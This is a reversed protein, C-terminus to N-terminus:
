CAFFASESAPALTETLLEEPNAILILNPRRMRGSSRQRSTHAADPASIGFLPVDVGGRSHTIKLLAFRPMESQIDKVASGPSEDGAARRCVVGKERWRSDM